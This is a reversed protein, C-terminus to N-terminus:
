KKTEKKEEGKKDEGKKGDKNEDKKERSKDKNEEGLDWLNEKEKEKEPNEIIEVDKLHEDKKLDHNDGHNEM